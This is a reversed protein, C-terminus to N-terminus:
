DTYERQGAGRAKDLIELASTHERRLRIGPISELLWRFPVRASLGLVSEYGLAGKGCRRSVARPASSLLPRSTSAPAPRDPASSAPAPTGASPTSPPSPGSM